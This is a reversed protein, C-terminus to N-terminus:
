LRNQLARIVVGWLLDEKTWSDLNQKKNTHASPSDDKDPAPDPALKQSKLIAAKVAEHHITQDLSVEGMPKDHM